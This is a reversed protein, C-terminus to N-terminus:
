IDREVLYMIFEQLREKAPGENLLNKADEWANLVIEKAKNKAYEIAGYKKIISIAEDILKKDTTHQELIKLLRKKDESNAKSLTYIVLLSRKGETIDEGYGKMKQFKKSTLNIIDDQIQFAVGVSEAIKGIKEVTEDDKGALIAALKASLRALGGTKNACMELYEEESIEKKWGRHWAIDTGQGLHLKTMEFIIMELARLRKEEDIKRNNILSLFPYFYLFNGVNIAIDEGYLKHICPKGRRLDSGDQIDDIIISGNHMLEPIVILEMVDKPNGGLAEYLLLFFTPRWRKGGRSMFDWVPECFARKFTEVDYKYSPEGFLRIMDEETPNEPLFSMIIKDIEKRKEKLFDVINGKEMQIPSGNENM